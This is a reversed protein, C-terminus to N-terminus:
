RAVALGFTFVLTSEAPPPPPPPADTVEVTFSGTVSGDKTAANVTTEGVSLGLIYTQRNENTFGVVSADFGSLDFQDGLGAETGDPHRVAVDLSRKQATTLTTDAM